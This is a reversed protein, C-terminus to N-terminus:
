TTRPTLTFHRLVFRAYFLANTYLLTFVPVHLSFLVPLRLVAM